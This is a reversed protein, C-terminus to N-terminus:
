DLSKGRWTEAAYRIGEREGRASETAKELHLLLDGSKISAHDLVLNSALRECRELHTILEDCETEWRAIREESLQGTGHFEREPRMRQTDSSRLTSVRVWFMGVM